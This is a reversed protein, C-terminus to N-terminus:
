KLGIRIVSLGLEPVLEGTRGAIRQEREVIQVAADFREGIRPTPKGRRRADRRGEVNELPKGARQRRRAHRDIEGVQAAVVIV